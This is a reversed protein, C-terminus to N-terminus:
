VHGNSWFTYVDKDQFIAVIAYKTPRKEISGFKALISPNWRLIVVAYKYDEPVVQM